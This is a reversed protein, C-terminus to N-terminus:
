RSSETPCPIPTPRTDTIKTGLALSRFGLPCLHDSELTFFERTFRQRVEETAFQYSVANLQDPPQYLFFRIDTHQKSQKATQTTAYLIRAQTAQANTGTPDAAAEAETQFHDSSDFVIASKRSVDFLDAEDHAPNGDDGWHYAAANHSTTDGCPGPKGTTALYMEQACKPTRYITLNGSLYSPGGYTSATPNLGLQKFRASQVEERLYWLLNRLQDDTTDEPVVLITPLDPKQAFLKFPPHTAALKAAEARATPSMVQLAPSATAPVPVNTRTPM